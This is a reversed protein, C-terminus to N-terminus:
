PGPFWRQFTFMLPSLVGKELKQPFTSVETPAKSWPAFSGGPM